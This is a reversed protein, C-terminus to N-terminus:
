ATKKQLIIEEEDRGVGIGEIMERAEEKRMGSENLEILLKECEDRDVRSRLTTHKKVEELRENMDDVMKYFEANMISNEMYKGARIDRLLNLDEEPRHTVIEHKELIDFAMQYLRILHSAHKNLHKDDKKKNRHDLKDYDKCVQNMANYLQNFARLPYNEFTGNMLIEKNHGESVADGIHLQVTGLSKDFKQQLQEIQKEVSHLIHGEREEESLSDRATANQLRKFQSYAYGSFTYYAKQSLFMEKNELLKEGEPSLYLYDENNLGLIEIINPNCDMLLEFMKGLSYITTDTDKDVFISFNSLGLLEKKSNFCIGRIDLDSDPTSTGYAHSGGLGLLIIKNKLSENEDLFKYDDSMIKEYLDPHAEIFERRIYKRM